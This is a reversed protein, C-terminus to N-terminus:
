SWRGIEEDLLRRGHEADMVFRELLPHDKEYATRVAAFNDATAGLPRLVLWNWLQEGHVPLTLSTIERSRDEDGRIHALYAFGQVVTSSIQPQRAVLEDAERALSRAAEIPGVTHAM